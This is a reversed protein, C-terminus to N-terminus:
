ERSRLKEIVEGEFSKGARRAADPDIDVPLYLERAAAAFAKPDVFAINAIQGDGNLNIFRRSEGADTLARNAATVVAAVDYWDGLNQAPFRYLRGAHIFQVMYPADEDDQSQQEWREHAAEPKFTGGSHAALDQLLQDHRVPLEGTETDFSTLLVAADFVATVFESNEIQDRTDGTGASGTPVALKKRANTAAREDIVKLAVLRELAKDSDIGHEAWRIATRQAPPVRNVLRVAAQRAPDGGILLLSKAVTAALREDKPTRDAVDALVKVLYPDASNRGAEGLADVADNTLEPDSLSALALDRGRQPDRQALSRLASGRVQASAGRGTVLKSLLLGPRAGSAKELAELAALSGGDMGLKGGTKGLYEACVELANSALESNKSRAHEAVAYLWWYRDDPTAKRLNAISLDLLRQSPSRQALGFAGRGQLDHGAEIVELLKRDLAASQFRVAAETAGRQVREDETGLHRFVFEEAGPLKARDSTPLKALEDMVSATAAPDAMLQRAVKTGEADGLRLLLFAAQVKMWRDAPKQNALRQRLLPLVRGRERRLREFSEPTSDALLLLTELEARLDDGKRTAALKRAVRLAAPDSIVQLAGLPASVSAAKRDVAAYRERSIACGALLLALPALWLWRPTM